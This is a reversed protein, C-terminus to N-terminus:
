DEIQWIEVEIRAPEGFRKYLVEDCIQSDDRYVVQSLADEVARALKLLYPRACPFPPASKKVKGSNRGNGYHSQPRPTYFIVQFGLPGVLLTRDGMEEGAVQSIETKWGSAKPNADSVAVGTRGNKRRIPFARKSGAPQPKGFVTFAVKTM